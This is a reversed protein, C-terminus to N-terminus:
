RLEFRVTVTFKVPLPRGNVILPEYIWQRVADMAAEDLIQISRLVRVNTVHGYVDTTAELIVTGRICAQRAIEPYVPEVRHILKPPKFEGAALIVSPEAAGFIDYLTSGILTAPLGGSLGYDVGGDIGFDSGGSGFIGEEIIGVPIDVPAVRWTAAAVNATRAKLRAGLNGSRAKPPPLPTSPLAPAVIVDSVDVEPLEGVQLLPLTVLLALAVAHILVAAPLAAAKDRLHREPVFLADQFM